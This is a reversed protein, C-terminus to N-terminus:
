VCKAVARSPAVYIRGDDGVYLDSEGYARSSGTLVTAAPENWYGDWFGAGHRNRTLWFDHGARGYDPLDPHAGRCLDHVHQNQFSVCDDIMSRLSSPAIDDVGYNEDLSGGDTDCSSAWLACEVYGQIFESRAVVYRASHLTWFPTGDMPAHYTVVYKRGDRYVFVAVNQADALEQASAMADRKLRYSTMM